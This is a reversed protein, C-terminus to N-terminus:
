RHRPLLLRDSPHGLATREAILATQRVANSRRLYPQQKCADCVRWRPLPGHSQLLLNGHSAFLCRRCEPVLAEGLKRLSPDDKDTISEHHAAKELLAIERLSLGAAAFFLPFLGWALGDNLNNVLGAQSACFLAPDIWSVRM